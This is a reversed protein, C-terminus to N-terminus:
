SPFLHVIKTQVPEFLAARLKNEDPCLLNITRWLHNRRPVTGLLWIKAMTSAESEIPSQIPVSPSEVNDCPTDYVFSSEWECKNNCLKEFSTTSPSEDHEKMKKISLPVDKPPIDYWTNFLIVSRGWEETPEKPSAGQVFPLLWLDTPRPVAHLMSGEFRLLRGAVAPVTILDIRKDGQILAGGSSRHPFLCTPGRVQNGVELYLVHGHKPYRYELTAKLQLKEQEKALNEDVDAHAEIHKWEQRTWYEVYVHNNPTDMTTDITCLISDLVNEIYNTPQTKRFVRHSDSLLRNSCASSHLNKCTEVSLVQDWVHAGHIALKIKRQNGHSRRQISFGYIESIYSETHIFSSSQFVIIALLKYRRM